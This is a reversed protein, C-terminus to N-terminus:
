EVPWGHVPVNAHMHERYLTTMRRLAQTRDM